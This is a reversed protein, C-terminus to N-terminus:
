SHHYILYCLHCSTKKWGPWHQNFTLHLLCTCQVVECFYELNVGLGNRHM